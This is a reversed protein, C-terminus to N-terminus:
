GDFSISTSLLLRMTKTKMVVQCIAHNIPTLDGLEKFEDDTLHLVPRM